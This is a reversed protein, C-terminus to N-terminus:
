SRPEAKRARVTIVVEFDPDVHDLERPRLEEAALGHLFASAVLVNGHAAVRVEGGFFAEQFLRHASATTFSWYYGWRDMDHRSIKSIGPVTVLAVGGPRLIRHITRAAAAVDYICQLTQTIIACDFADSDLGAGDALDAVITTGPGAEAVHLVDRHTVRAGGFARTYTDAGIELVRGRIDAAHAALFREIYYRDIPRGRSFGWDPCVPRVRRLSGFRVFGVPPRRTWRRASRRLRGPVVSRVWERLANEM